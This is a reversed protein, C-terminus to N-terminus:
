AVIVKVIYMALLALLSIAVVAGVEVLIGLAYDGWRRWRGREAGRTVTGDAM